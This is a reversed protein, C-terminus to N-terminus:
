PAEGSGSALARAHEALLAAAGVPDDVPHRSVAEQWEFFRGSVDVSVWVRPSAMKARVSIAPRADSMGVKLGLKALERCLVTLAELDRTLVAFGGRKGEASPLPVPLPIQWAGM